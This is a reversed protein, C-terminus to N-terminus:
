AYDLSPHENPEEGMTPLLRENKRTALRRHNGVQETRDSEGSHWAYDIM